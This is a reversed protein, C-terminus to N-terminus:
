IFPAYHPPKQGEPEYLAAPAQQFWQLRRRPLVSAHGRVIKRAPAAADFAVSRWARGQAWWERQSRAASEITASGVTGVESAARADKM